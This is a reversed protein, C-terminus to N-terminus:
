VPQKLTLSQLLKEGVKSINGAGMTFVIDGPVIISLLKDCIDDM